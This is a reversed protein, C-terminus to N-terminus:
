PNFVTTVCVKMELHIYRCLDRWQWMVFMASRWLHTLWVVMFISCSCTQRICMIKHYECFVGKYFLLVVDLGCCCIGKWLFNILIMWRQGYCNEEVVVTREAHYHDRWFLIRYMEARTNLYHKMNNRLFEILDRHIEKSNFLKIYVNLHYM